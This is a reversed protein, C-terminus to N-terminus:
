IGWTRGENLIAGIQNLFSHIETFRVDSSTVRMAPRDADAAPPWRRDDVDPMAEKALTLLNNYNGIFTSSPKAEREKAPLKELAQISASVQSNLQDATIAM